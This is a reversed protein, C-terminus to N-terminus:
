NARNHLKETYVHSGTVDGVLEIDVVELLLPRSPRDECIVIEEGFLEDLDKKWATKLEKMM